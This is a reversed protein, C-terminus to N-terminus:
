SASSSSAMLYPHLLGYSLTWYSYTNKALAIEAKMVGLKANDVDYITILGAQYNIAMTNYVDRAKDLDIQLAKTNEQMKQVNFYATRVASEINRQTDEYERSAQTLSNQLQLKSEQLVSQFSDMAYQAESVATKKLQVTPDSQLSTNILQDLDPLHLDTMAPEYQVIVEKTLPQKVIKSLGGKDNKISLALTDLNAKAQDYSLQASKLEIESAMGLGLKLKLNKINQSLLDINAQLLQYDMNGSAITAISSRLLYETTEKIMQQNLPINEVTSEISKLGRLANVYSQEYLSVDFQSSDFTRGIALAESIEQIKTVTENHQETLFEVSETLNLITSNAKNASELAEEYTMTIPDTTSAKNADVIKWTDKGTRISITKTKADWEVEAGLANSVFRVPVMVDGNQYFPAIPMDVEAGNVFAKKSDVTITLRKDGRNATATRTSDKWEVKADLYKFLDYMGMASYGDKNVPPVNFGSLLGDVNLFMNAAQASFPLLVLLSVALARRLANMIMKKKKM